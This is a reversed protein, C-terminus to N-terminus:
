DTANLLAELFDTVPKASWDAFGAHRFVENGEADVVITIPLGTVDYPESVAMVPDRLIELGEAGAEATFARLSGPGARDMAVTLVQLSRDAFAEDLAALTPMERKCPACWTAWFNLVTVEGNTLRAQLDVPLGALDQVIASPVAVPAASVPEIAEAPRAHASSLMFAAALALARRM